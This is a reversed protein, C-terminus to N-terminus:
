TLAQAQRVAELPNLRGAGQANRDSGELPTASQRLLEKIDFHTLQPNAQLMMAVVGTVMPTAQSTGDLALYQSWHPWQSRDLESDPSIPGFVGVGSAVLDPKEDGDPHTPGHSSFRWLTDDDHDPTAKDDLAGVTIADPLTGPTSITGPCRPGRCENGAAAVVVLGADIAKQTAQAFPDRASPIRPDDGLSLNVADISLRDKNDIIWELGRIAERANTIRVGVLDVGPAVGRVQPGNGGLVGAVNTGHGHPDHPSDHHRSNMDQFAKIRDQFDPHPHIGSDIVAVTVGRGDIGEAWLENLRTPRSIYPTEEPAPATRESFESDEPQIYRIPTDVRIAADEPLLSRFEDLRDEPVDVVFGNILDLDEQPVLCMEESCRKTTTARECDDPLGVIVPLMRSQIM